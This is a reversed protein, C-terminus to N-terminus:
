QSCTDIDNRPQLNGYRSELDDLSQFMQGTSAGVSISNFQCDNKFSIAATQFISQNNRVVTVLLTYKFCEDTSCRAQVYVQLGRASDTYIGQSDMLGNDHNTTLPLYQNAPDQLQVDVTYGVDSMTPLSVSFIKYNANQAAAQVEAQSSVASNLNNPTNKVQSRVGKAKQSCSVSSLLLFTTFLIKLFIQISHKKKQTLGTKYHFM